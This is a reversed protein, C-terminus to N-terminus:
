SILKFKIPALSVHSGLVITDKTFGAYGEILDEKILAYRPQSTNDCPTESVRKIYKIASFAHQEYVHCDGLQMIAKGPKLDTLEAVVIIMAAALIIDSPLGILLDVSRQIWIMDLEGNATVYFQYAYHCCPLSLEGIRDARWANILHRRSHPDAKLSDIVDQLQNVGNFDTWANGYDVTINGKDDGWQRWYNCGQAEFAAVTKPGKFFAALEGLVGSPYMQRGTIMPFYTDGVPVELTKGFLSKTVANRGQSLKGNSLVNAIIDVYDKEFQEM